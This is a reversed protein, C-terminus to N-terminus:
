FHCKADLSIIAEVLVAINHCCIKCMIENEKTTDLKGRITNGFKRKIMSFTSEANSRRHYHEKFQEPNQQWMRVMKGWASSGQPQAKTNKKPMIYPVAGIEKAADCNDRSLYGADASIEKVSFVKATENLLPKFYPSDNATGETVYASTIVNTRVGCIM